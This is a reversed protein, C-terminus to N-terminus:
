INDFINKSLLDYWKIIGSTHTTGKEVSYTEIIIPFKISM